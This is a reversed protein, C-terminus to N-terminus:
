LSNIEHEYEGETIDGRDFAIDLELRKIRKELQNIREDKAKEELLQNSLNQECKQSFEIFDKPQAFTKIDLVMIPEKKLNYLVVCDKKM